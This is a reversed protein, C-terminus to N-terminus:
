ETQDSIHLEPIEICGCAEELVQREEENLFTLNISKDQIQKIETDEYRNVTIKDPGHFKPLLFSYSAKNL